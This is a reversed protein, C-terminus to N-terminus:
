IKGKKELAEALLAYVRSQRRERASGLPTAANAPIGWQNRVSQIAAQRGNAENRQRYTATYKNKM